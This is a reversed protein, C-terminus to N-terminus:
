RAALVAANHNEAPQMQVQVAREIAALRAELAANQQELEQVRAQLKAVQGAANEGLDAFVQIQGKASADELAYGIIKCADTAKM